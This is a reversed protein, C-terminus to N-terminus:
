PRTQIGDVDSTIKALKGQQDFVFTVTKDRPNGEREERWKKVYYILRKPDSDSVMTGDPFRYPLKDDFLEQSTLGDWGVRNVVITEPSGLPLGNIASRLSNLLDGSMEFYYWDGQEYDQCAFPLLECPSCRKMLQMCSLDFGLAGIKRTPVTDPTAQVEVRDMGVMLDGPGKFGGGSRLIRWPSVNRETSVKSIAIRALTDDASFASLDMSQVVGNSTSFVVFFTNWPLWRRLRKNKIQLDYLPGHNEWLASGLFIACDTNACASVPVKESPMQQKNLYNRSDLNVRHSKAAEILDALTSEGVRVSKAIALMAEAQRQRDWDSLAVTAALLLGVSVV